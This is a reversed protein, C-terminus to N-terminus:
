QPLSLQKLCTIRLIYALKLLAPMVIITVHGAIQQELSFHEEVFYVFIIAGLTILTSLTLSINAYRLRKSTASISM